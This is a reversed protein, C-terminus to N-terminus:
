EYCKGMLLIHAARTWANEPPEYEKTGNKSDEGWRSAADLFGEITWNEWGNAGAGFPSSPSLKEKAVEDLRDEGLAAIFRLFSQEDVAENALQRLDRPM